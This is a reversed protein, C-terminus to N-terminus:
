INLWNKGANHWRWERTEEDWAAWQPAQLLRLANAMAKNVRQRGGEVTAHVTPREAPYTVVKSAARVVKAPIELREELRWVRVPQEGRGSPTELLPAASDSSTASTAHPIPSLNGLTDAPAPAAQAVPPPGRAAPGNFGTGHATYGSKLQSASQFSMSKNMMDM